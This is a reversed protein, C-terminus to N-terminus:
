MGEMGRPLTKIDDPKKGPIAGDGAYWGGKCENCVPKGAAAQQGCPCQGMKLACHDCPHKLCCMYKGEKMAKLKQDQISQDAQKMAKPRNMMLKKVMEISESMNGQALGWGVAGVFFAGALALLVMIFKKKV